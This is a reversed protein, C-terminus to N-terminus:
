KVKQVVKDGESIKDKINGSVFGAASMSDHVKEVLIDGIYKHRHYVSFVDDLKVGERNGLNIVAFNYDKNIVLVQGELAAIQSGKEEPLPMAIEPAVVINGLEVNQSKSELDKIKLELDAKLSEIEALKAQTKRTDNQAQTLKNELDLRLRRQEELDARVLEARSLAEARTTKEKQLDSNLIDIQLKYDQIKVQLDSVQKQSDKLKAETAKQKSNLEELQQQLDRTRIREKQFLYFGGGASVLSILVLVVLIIVPASARRNMKGGITLSNKRVRAKVRLLLKLGIFIL